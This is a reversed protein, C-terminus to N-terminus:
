KIPDKKVLRSCAYQIKHDSYSIEGQGRETELPPICGADTVEDHWNLFIKDINRDLRTPPTQVEVMDPYDVLAQGIEWQNFDGAIMLYPDQCAYKIHLVPDRICELCAKGRPVSYGPPIYAAIVHFKRTISIETISLPLVEFDEPNPFPYPSVKTSSSETIVAVGGRAVGNTSPLRNLYNINLGHGLLLDQSERELRSGSALWISLCSVLRM